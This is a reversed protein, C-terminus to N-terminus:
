GPLRMGAGQFEAVLKNKSNYLKVGAFGSSRGVHAVTAVATITEGVKSSRIFSLSAQLTAPPSGLSAIAYAFATDAVAFIFGGHCIGHSNAMNAEVTMEMTVEGPEVKLLSVGLRELAPKDAEALKNVIDVAQQLDSTPTTSPPTDQTM